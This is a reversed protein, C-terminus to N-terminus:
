RAPLEKIASMTPRSPEPVPTDRRGPDSVPPAKDTLVAGRTVKRCDRCFAVFRWHSENQVWHFIGIVALFDCGPAFM